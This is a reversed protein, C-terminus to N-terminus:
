IARPSQKIQNIKPCYGNLVELAEELKESEFNRGGNVSKWPGGDKEWKATYDVCGLYDSAKLCKEHVDESVETFASAPSHMTLPILMALLPGAFTSRSIAFSQRLLPDPM